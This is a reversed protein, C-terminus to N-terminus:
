CSLWGHARGVGKRVVRKESKTQSAGMRGQNEEEEGDCGPEPIVRGELRENSSRWLTGDKAREKGSAKM